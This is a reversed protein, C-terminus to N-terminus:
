AKSVEPEWDGEEPSRRESVCAQHAERGLGMTQGLGRADQRLWKASRTCSVCGCEPGLQGGQLGPQGTSGEKGKGACDTATSVELNVLLDTETTASGVM